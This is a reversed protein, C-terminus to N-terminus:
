RPESMRIFWYNRCQGSTTDRSLCTRPLHTGCRIAPRGNLWVQRGFQKSSRRRSSPNTSTTDGKRAQEQMGGATRRRSLKRALSARVVKFHGIYDEDHAEIYCRADDPDEFQRQILLYEGEGDEESEFLVQFYDGSESASVHDLRIKM